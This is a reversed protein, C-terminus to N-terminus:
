NMSSLNTCNAFARAGIVEITDPLDISTLATNGEFASAGIEVVTLGDIAAPVTVSAATGNYKKIIIGSNDSNCVYTFDGFVLEAEVKEGIIVPAEDGYPIEETVGDSTAKYWLSHEGATEFTYTVNWDKCTAYEVIDANETTWSALLASDEYLELYNMDLNTTIHMPLAEGANASEYWTKIIAPRKITVPDTEAFPIEMYLGDKSAKYWLYYDGPQTFTYSVTWDKCTEYVTICDAADSANWSAIVEDGLYLYLYQMDLNTTVCLTAPLNEVTDAYWVGIIAPRNIFLPAEPAFPIEQTVGDASAKYWLYYDGSADFTYSVTWDKCTAYETIVVDSDTASWSKLLTEGMYMELYQMDLNTTVHIYTPSGEITQDYWVGILAPREIYVPDPQYAEGMTSGDASAMYWLYYDGCEEFTYTVIWEKNYDNATITAESASWRALRNEGMYMEVYEATLDTTVYINIPEDEFCLDYWVGLVAAGGVAATEVETEEPTEDEAVEEENEAVVPAENETEEVVPEEVAAQLAATDAFGAVADDNLDFEVKAVSGECDGVIARFAGDAASAIIAVSDVAGDGDADIFALDGKAPEYGNEEFADASEIKGAFSKATDASPYEGDIEAMELVWEVFMASWDSYASGFYDGYISYAHKGDADIIFDVDSEAYGVQSAAIAAIDEGWDGTLNIAAANKMWSGANDADEGAVPVVVVAEASVGEADVVAVTIEYDGAYAPTCDFEVNGAAEVATAEADAVSVQYPAIGGGIEIAVTISEGVRGFLEASCAKVTLPEASPEEAPEESLEEAPEESPEESPEEAPEESPEEAPEESPEEAPEEVVAEEVPAEEIVVAAPAVDDEAFTVVGSVLLVGAIILAMLRKMM